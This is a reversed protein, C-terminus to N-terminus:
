KKKKKKKFTFKERTLVFEGVKHGVMENSITIQVFKKGTHVNIDSGILNSTISFSRPLYILKEFQKLYNKTNKIYPGKWKSRSM